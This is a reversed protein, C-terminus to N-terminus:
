KAKPKMKPPKIISGISKRKMTLSKKKSPTQFGIKEEMNIKVKKIKAVKPLDKSNTKAIKGKTSKLSKDTSKKAGDDTSKKSKDDKSKKSGGDASKKIKDTDNKSSTGSANLKKTKQTTKSKEQKKPVLKFSGSAGVGKMQLISGEEVGIKLQKKIIHKVKNIDVNNNDAIYKKIAYYSVGKRSKLEELAEQLMTKTSKKNPDIERNQESSSPIPKNIVKKPVITQINSKDSMNVTTLSVHM